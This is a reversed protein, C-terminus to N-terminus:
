EDEFLENISILEGFEQAGLGEGHYHKDYRANQIQILISLAKEMNPVKPKSTPELRKM